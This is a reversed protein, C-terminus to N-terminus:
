NMVQKIKLKAGMRLIMDRDEDTQEYSAKDKAESSDAIDYGEERRNM